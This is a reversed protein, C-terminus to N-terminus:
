SGRVMGVAHARAKLSRVAWRHTLEMAAKAEAHGATSPICQDLVMMIDSGIAQQMAISSEPSLHHLEGDVYSRFRAGDERM